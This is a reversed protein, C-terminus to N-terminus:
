LCRQWTPAPLGKLGNQWRQKVEERLAEAIAKGDILKARM